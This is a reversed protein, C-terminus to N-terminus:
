SNDIADVRLRNLSGFTFINILVSPVSALFLKLLLNSIVNRAMTLHLTSLIELLLASLLNREAVDVGKEINPCSNNKLLSEASEQMQM